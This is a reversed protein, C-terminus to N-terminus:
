AGARSPERDPMDCTAGDSTWCRVIDRMSLIGAIEGRDLVVVHRFAGRIMAEAARELPWDTSAYQIESALHDRVFEADMDEDQGNSRLLDRETIIGPGPQDLGMVVAAGVGHKTMRRATERLSHDPGVTVVIENMAEGVQM